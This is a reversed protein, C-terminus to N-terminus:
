GARERHSHCLCSLGATSGPRTGGEDETTDVSTELFPQRSMKTWAEMLLETVAGVIKVVGEDALLGAESDLMAIVLDRATDYDDLNAMIRGQADRQRNYQHMLASVKVLTLLSNFDRRMRLRDVRTLQSIVEAFPIVVDREGIIMWQQYAHWQTLSRQIEESNMGGTTALSSM